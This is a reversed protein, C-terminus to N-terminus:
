RGLFEFALVHTHKTTFIGLWAPGHHCSGLPKPGAQTNSFGFGPWWAAVKGSFKLKPSDLHEDTWGDTQRFKSYTSWALSHWGNNYDNWKKTVMNLLNQYHHTFEVELLQDLLKMFEWERKLTQLPFLNNIKDGKSQPKLIGDQQSLRSADRDSLRRGNEWGTNSCEKAAAAVKCWRSDLVTPLDQLCCNQVVWLAFNLSCKSFMTDLM